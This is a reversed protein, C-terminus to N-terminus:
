KGQLVADLIEAFPEMANKASGLTNKYTGLEMLISKPRLHLNFRYSKLYNKYFLGPYKELSKLQLQLSFALNDQQNPNDLRTLPGSTSRSLGNFLM